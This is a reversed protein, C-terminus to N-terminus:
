HAVIEAAVIRWNNRELRWLLSVAGAQGVAAKLAFDTRYTKGDFTPPGMTSSRGPTGANCELTPALDTSM